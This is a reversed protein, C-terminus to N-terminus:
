QSTKIVLVKIIFLLSYVKKKFDNKKKRKKKKKDLEERLGKNSKNSKIDFLIKM